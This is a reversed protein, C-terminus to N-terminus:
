WLLLGHHIGRCCITGIFSHALTGHLIISRSVVTLAPRLVARQTTLKPMAILVLHQLVGISIKRPEISLGLM